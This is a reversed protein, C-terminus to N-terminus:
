WGQKRQSPCFHEGGHYDAWAAKAFCWLSHPVFLFASAWLEPYQFNLILTNAPKREGLAKERRPKCIAAEKSHRWLAEERNM